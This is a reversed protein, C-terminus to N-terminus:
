KLLIWVSTRYKWVSLSWICQFALGSFQWCIIVRTKLFCNLWQTMSWNGNFIDTSLSMFENRNKKNFWTKGKDDKSISNPIGPISVQLKVSGRKKRYSVPNPLMYHLIQSHNTSAMSHSNANLFTGILLWDSQKM